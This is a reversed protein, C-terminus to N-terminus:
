FSRMKNSRRVNRCCIKKSIDVAPKKLDSYFHSATITDSIINGNIDYAETCIVDFETFDNTDYLVWLESNLTVSDSWYSAFPNM